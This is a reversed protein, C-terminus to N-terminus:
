PRGLPWTHSHSSPNTFFVSCWLISTKLSHYQLLSRLIRHLALLDFWDIKLSILESYENNPRISFSQYKPWRMCFAPSENSFGRISPFISSLLLPPHWLIFHSSPMELAISMFKCLSWSISLSLSNQHAATGPTVFLWSSLWFVVLEVYTLYAPYCYIAKIYEKVLKLGTQKEIVPALQQKKVQM